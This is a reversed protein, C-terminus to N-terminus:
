GPIFCLVQVLGQSSQKNLLDTFLLLFFFRFFDLRKEKLYMYFM